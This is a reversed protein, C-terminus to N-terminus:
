AKVKKQIKVVLNTLTTIQARLASILKTVSASLEAVADVAEQAIATAAEAAEAASLAADTADNAAATAEEAAATTADNSADTVTASATITSNAANTSTATLVFDGGLAPAYAGTKYVKAGAVYVSATTPLGIVSKNSSIATLSVTNDAVPNGSADKATITVIMAEGPAYSAKDTTIVETAVSGGVTILLDSTLFTLPAAPNAIRVTLTAKGGSVASAPTSFVANYQGVGSGLTGNDATLTIASSVVTADSSLATFALNGVGNGLLDTAKVTFAAATPTAASTGTTAGGATGVSLVPTAVIKTVAGYSTFSKTGIVTSALTVSDTVSITVTGSGSTGDTILHVVAINDTGTLTYSAARVGNTKNETGSNDIVALGSGTVVASVLHKNGGATLDANLLIVQVQGLATGATKVAALPVAALAPTYAADSTANQATIALGSQGSRVISLSPALTTGAVVTISITQVAETVDVVGDIDSDQWVTMTYAGAVTPTFTFSGSGVTSTATVAPATTPIATAKLILSNVAVVEAAAAFAVPYSAAACGAAGGATAQGCTGLAASTLRFGGAPYTSLYSSFRITDNAAPTVTANLGTGVNVAVSLGVVNTNTVAAALTIAQAKVLVTNAEVASSPVVSLMGFGLTAVAVLAIRKFTTKTSM